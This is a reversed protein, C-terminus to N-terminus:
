FALSNNSQFMEIGKQNFYLSRGEGHKREHRILIIRSEIVKFLYYVKRRSMKDAATDM